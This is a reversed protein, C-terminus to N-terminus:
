TENRMYTGITECYFFHNINKEELSTFYKEFDTRIHWFVGKCVIKLAQISANKSM